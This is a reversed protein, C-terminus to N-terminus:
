EPKSKKQPNPEAGDPLERKTRKSEAMLSAIDITADDKEKATAAYAKWARKEADKLQGWLGSVYSSSAKM